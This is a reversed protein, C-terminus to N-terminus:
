RINYICVPIVFLAQNFELFVHVITSNHVVFLHWDSLYIIIVSFMDALSADQDHM